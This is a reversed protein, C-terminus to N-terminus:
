LTDVFYIKTNYVQTPITANFNYQWMTLSDILLWGTYNWVKQKWSQSTFNAKLMWGWVMQYCSFLTKSRQNEILRQGFCSGFYWCWHWHIGWSGLAEPTYKDITELCLAALQPEDFLRAQFYHLQIYLTDWFKM